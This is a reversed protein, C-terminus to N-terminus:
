KVPSGASILRIISQNHIVISFTSLLPNSRCWTLKSDFDEHFSIRYCHMKSSAAMKGGSESRIAMLAFLWLYM